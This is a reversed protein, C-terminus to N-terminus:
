TYMWPYVTFLCFMVYCFVVCKTRLSTNNTYYVYLLKGYVNHVYM